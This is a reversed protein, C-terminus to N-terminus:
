TKSRNDWRAYNERVDIHVFTDYLGLGYKNIFMSEIYNYVTEPTTDKVQIDSALGKMHQSTKSGNINTNHEPCRNGSTITIPKSFHDRVNQLLELLVIDVAIHGCNNGCKCAFEHRQFNDSVYM